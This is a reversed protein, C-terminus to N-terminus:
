NTHGTTQEDHSVIFARSSICNPQEKTQYCGVAYGTGRYFNVACSGYSKQQYCM